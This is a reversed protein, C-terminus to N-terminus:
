GVGGGARHLDQGHGGVGDGCEKRKLLCGGLDSDGMCEHTHVMEPPTTLRGPVM